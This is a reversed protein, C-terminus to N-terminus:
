ARPLVKLSAKLLDKLRSSSGVQIEFRGPEVVRQGEADVLSFAEYPITFRVPRAEGPDLSIRQFAKLAHNVWTVSAVEDAIYLQAIEDGALKGTNTVEVTVEASEGEHLEPTLIELGAYRFTTYSLGFGFAFLPEQTLDAYRTGHQGRVQSYFVPQQGVHHPFSVPLKGSPNIKGWIIEAIATGGAMGPNFAEIIAGAGLLSPPLVLPKSNILVVATPTGTKQLADLLALQGGQLELTATSLTEGIFPLGDGVVVVAVDSRAALAVAAEIGDRERTVGSCGPAFAIRCGAPAIQRLGDLVTQTCERPQKGYSEDYQWGGLSWDGLQDLDNDANPGIVALREVYEPRLPLLSRNQLLVVSQRAAELNLERHAACAIVERAKAPDSRRPNEFLGMRFKVGLVRRCPGDLDAETLLGAAVAALAGEYFEPTTMMIDNGAKVAVAAAQTIDACTKQETVLRGVNNWDTVVIGEFGWEDKLVTRLLWRNATSPVGDMSQYGTMFSLCGARTATEFPPLFYSRLKRRSLDAESADRGGQTESYGAFHKATALIGEPDDLGRGQYGKIMAAGLEGILHPDEGFTEGVRGWRLDRTLCLVPSFTWHVGTSVVERATARAVKELLAPNWSCAMTLQTPFVTAGKWFAHGHICDEAILLPIGLRSRRSHEIADDSKPPLIHLMSGPTRDRLTGAIDEMRGDLMLLQGIKEEPTMRALLDDVRTAVPLNKDQYPATEM